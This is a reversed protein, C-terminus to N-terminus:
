RITRPDRKIIVIFTDEPLADNQAALIGTRLSVALARFLAACSGSQPIALCDVPLKSSFIFGVDGLNQDQGPPIPMLDSVSWGVGGDKDQISLADHIASAAIAAELRDSPGYWLIVHAKPSGRLESLFLFNFNVRPDLRSTTEALQKRLTLNAAELQDARIRQKVTDQEAKDARDRAAIARDSAEVAKQRVLRVLETNKGRLKTNANGSM